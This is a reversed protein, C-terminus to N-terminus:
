YFNSTDCFQNPQLHLFLVVHFSVFFGFFLYFIRFLGEPKTKPNKIHRYCLLGYIIYNLCCSCCCTTCLTGLYGERVAQPSRLLCQAWMNNHYSIRKREGTLESSYDPGKELIHRLPSEKPSLHLMGGRELCFM